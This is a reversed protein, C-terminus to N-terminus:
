KFLRKREQRFGKIEQIIENDTKDFLKNIPTEKSLYSDVTTNGYDVLTYQEYEKVTDDYFFPIGIIEENRKQRKKFQGGVFSFIRLKLAYTKLTQLIAHIKQQLKKMLKYKKLGVM